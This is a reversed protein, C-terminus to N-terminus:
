ADPSCMAVQNPPNGYGEQTWGGDQRISDRVDVEATYRHHLGNANNVFRYVPHTNAPCSGTSTDPLLIYFVTPSEYIWQTSFRKLTAACENADASFFHSDGYQPVVYFRCVARAGPPAVSPDTYALFRLGTRVWGLHVGNDLDSIEAANATIFYDDLTANYFEVVPTTKGPNASNPTLYQTLLPLAVDFRSYDDIGRPTRCSSDGAYLGGRLEYYNGSANLTFLGSGSSGPETVGQTWQMGIFSSGDPYNVYPQVIGQSFKKLDGEPHHIGDAPAGATIPGSGNWAAFTAGAPPANNLKLLAWDYDVSRALLSAGGVVLIFNVASSTHVGCTSTQFFWYTNITSAVAAPNGRSAAPDSDDDDICHNATYFYPTFSAVSDNLLTGTCLYTAGADTLVVRAVANIASAAQQQLAGSLCAVDVECSASAGIQHLPDAQKLASGAVALHSLTPVWLIADDLPATAPVALEITATDGELVPSWYLDRKGFSRADYPGFVTDSGSGKFRVVLGAPAGSLKIGVRVGAAGPSTVTVQAALTDGGAAQWPLEALRHSSEAAPVTRAFGITLRRNKPTPKGSPPLPKSKLANLESAAPAPLEVKRGSATSPLLLAGTTESKTSVSANPRYDAPPVSVIQAFALNAGVILLLPIVRFM